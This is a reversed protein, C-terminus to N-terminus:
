TIVDPIVCVTLAPNVADVRVCVAQDALPQAPNSPSTELRFSVVGVGGIRVSGAPDADGDDNEDAVLGLKDGLLSEKGDEPSAQRYVDFNQYPNGDENIGAGVCVGLVVEDGRKLENCVPDAEAHAVAPALSVGLVAM